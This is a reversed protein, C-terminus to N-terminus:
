GFYAPTVKFLFGQAMAAAMWGAHTADLMANMPAEILLGRGARTM